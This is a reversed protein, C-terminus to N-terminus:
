MSLLRGTESGCSGADQSGSPFILDLVGVVKVPAAGIGGVSTVANFEDRGIGGCRKDMGGGGVM